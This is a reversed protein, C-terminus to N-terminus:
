NCCSSGCSDCGHHGHGKLKSLLGAGGLHFHAHGCGCGSDCCTTPCAPACPVEKVVERCVMRCATYTEQTPVCVRVTRTAQCPTRKQVCVTYNEVRTEPIKKCVTVQCLVQKQVPKYVTVKCTVPRQECVRENVTVTCQEQVMNPVWKKVTKTRVCECAPACADACGGCGSDCGCGHKHLRSTLKHLRDKMSPGCPVECCEYHGRDVCKTVTKTTPKCVWHSQMTTREEVVPVCETVTKTVNQVESVTKCCTVTRQRTEQVWECKYATYTETRCEVKNVTRTCQYNEPVWEKCCVKRTAPACPDIAAPAAPAAKSADEARVPLAAAAVLASAVLALRVQLRNM